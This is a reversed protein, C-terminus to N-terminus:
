RKERNSTSPRSRTTAPLQLIETCYLSQVVRARELADMVTQGYRLFTDLDQLTIMTTQSSQRRDETDTLGSTRLNSICTMTGIERTRPSVQAQNVGYGPAELTQHHMPSLPQQRSLMSTRRSSYTIPLEFTEMEFQKSLEKLSSTKTSASPTERLMEDLLDYESPGHDKQDQRKKTVTTMQEMIKNLQSSTHSQATNRSHQWQSKRKRRSSSSTSCTFPARRARSLSAQSM